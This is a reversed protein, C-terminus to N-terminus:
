KGRELMFALTKVFDLVDEEKIGYDSLGRPIKLMPKLCVQSIIGPDNHLSFHITTYTFTDFARTGASCVKYGDIIIDNDIYKADVGKSCIWDAIRLMVNRQHTLTKDYGIYALGIATKDLVITGGEHNIDIITINHEKCYEENLDNETSRLVYMENNHSIFIKDQKLYEEFNESFEKLEVYLM